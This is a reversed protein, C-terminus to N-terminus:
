SRTKTDPQAPKQAEKKAQKYRMLFNAPPQLTPPFTQYYDPTMGLGLLELLHMSDPSSDPNAEDLALAKDRPDRPGLCTSDPGQIINSIDWHGKASFNGM